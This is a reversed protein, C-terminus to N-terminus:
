ERIITGQPGFCTPVHRAIDYHLYRLFLDTYKTPKTNCINDIIFPIFFILDTKV